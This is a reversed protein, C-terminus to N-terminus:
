NSLVQSSTIQNKLESIGTIAKAENMTTGFFANVKSWM